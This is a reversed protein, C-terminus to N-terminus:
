GLAQIRSRRLTIQHVWELQEITETAPKVPDCWDGATPVCGQALPGLGSQHSARPAGSGPPPENTTEEARHLVPRAENGAVGGRFAPARRGRNKIVWGVAGGAGQTLSGIM